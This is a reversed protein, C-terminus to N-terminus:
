IIKHPFQMNDGERKNRQQEGERERDEEERKEKDNTKGKKTARYRKYDRQMRKEKNGHRERQQRERTHWFPTPDYTFKVVRETYHKERREKGRRKWKRRALKTMRECM